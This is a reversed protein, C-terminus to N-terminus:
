PDFGLILRKLGPEQVAAAAEARSFWQRQREHAEPWDDLLREVRLPFVEVEATVALLLRRQKRYRFAGIPETGIEGEAGAEEVAELAAAEHSKRRAMPNGKPIVWRRTERSTVLLIKLEGDGDFRYPLAGLQKIM